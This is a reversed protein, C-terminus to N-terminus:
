RFVLGTTKTIYSRIDPGFTVALYLEKNEKTLGFIKPGDRDILKQTKSDKSTIDFSDKSVNVVFQSFFSGKNVFDPTGFGPQPNIQFKKKAYSKSMYEKLKVGDARIGFQFLQEQNLEILDKASKKLIRDIEGPLDVKKVKDLLGQITM